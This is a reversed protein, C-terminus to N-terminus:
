VKGHWAFDRDGTAEAHVACVFTGRGVHGRVLGRSELERYGNVVTTRSVGLLGALDRESPLRDGPQLEGRAVANRVHEVLREFLAGSGDNRLNLESWIVSMRDM